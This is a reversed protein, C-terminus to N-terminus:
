AMSQKKTRVQIAFVAGNGILKPEVLDFLGVLLCANLVTCLGLNKLKLVSEEDGM